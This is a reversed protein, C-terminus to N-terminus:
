KSYLVDYDALGASVPAPAQTDVSPTAKKSSSSATAVQNTEVPTATEEVQVWTDGTWTQYEPEAEKKKEDRVIALFSDPKFELQGSIKEHLFKGTECDAILWLTELLLENKLLLYKGAFNPHSVDANSKQINTKSREAQFYSSYDLPKCTIAQVKAPYHSFDAALTPKAFLSLLTLLLM